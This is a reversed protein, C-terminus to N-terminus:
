RALGQLYVVTFIAVWVIDLFHWFLGLRLLRTKVAPVDGFVMIQVLMVVIWLSGILVHLGHVSLLTYLASLYGSRQPSAGEGLMGSFDHLELGLFTLGLVLTIALWVLLHSRRADYKMALSAMGFTFSSALLVVTELFASRLHFLDAPGPGGAAGRLMVGYTAFLLAFLVADSMLFVWFGFVTTQAHRSAGADAHAINIGPHNHEHLSM